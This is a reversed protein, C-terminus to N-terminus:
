YKKKKNIIGRKERVARENERSVVVGDRWGIVVM